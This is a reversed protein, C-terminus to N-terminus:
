KESRKASRVKAKLNTSPLFKVSYTAPVDIREGTNPNRAKRAKRQCAMFRGFGRIIIGDSKVLADEIAEFVVRVAAEADSRKLMAHSRVVETLDEKTQMM